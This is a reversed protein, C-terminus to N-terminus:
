ASGSVQQVNGHFHVISASISSRHRTAPFKLFFSQKNKLITKNKNQHQILQKILFVTKLPRDKKICTPKPTHKQQPFPPFIAPLSPVFVALLILLAPL